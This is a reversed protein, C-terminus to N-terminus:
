MINQDDFGDHKLHVAESIQTIVEPRNQAFIGIYKDGTQSHGRHLLASGAFEARDAVQVCSCRTFICLKSLLWIQDFVFSVPNLLCVSFFVLSTTSYPKLDIKSQLLRVEKYSLWTYPKGPKRSGLCPGNDLFIFSLFTFIECM